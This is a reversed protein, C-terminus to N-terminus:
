RTGEPRAEPQGNGRAGERGTREGTALLIREGDRLAGAGVTIVRAGEQLGSVIEVRDATRIGTQVPVFRAVMAPGGPPAGPAGGAAPGGGGPQGGERGTRAVSSPEAPGGGSGAPADPAAEAIFVGTQGNTEVLANRPVTLAEGRTDVTLQVRAYMGPKLRYGPNPVEIEMEATRTSPDFV